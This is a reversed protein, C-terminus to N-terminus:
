GERRGFFYGIALGAFGNIPSLYQVLTAPEVGSQVGALVGVVVALVLVGALFFRGFDRRGELRTEVRHNFDERAQTHFQHAYDLSTRLLQVLQNFTLEKLGAAAAADAARRIAEAAFAVDEAASHSEEARRERKPLRPKEDM